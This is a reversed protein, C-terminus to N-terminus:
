GAADNLDETAGAFETDVSFDDNALMMERMGEGGFNQVFGLTARLGDVFGLAGGAFIKAVQRDDGDISLGRAIEVVGDVDLMAGVAAPVQLDVDGVHRVVNSRLASEVPVRTEAASGNVEGITGDGHM